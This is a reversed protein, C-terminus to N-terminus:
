ITNLIEEKIKKQHQSNKFEKKIKMEKIYDIFFSNKTPLYHLNFNVGEKLMILVNDSTKVKFGQPSSNEKLYKSYFLKKLQNKSTGNSTEFKINAYALLDNFFHFEHKTTYQGVKKRLIIIRLGIIKPPYIVIKNANLSEIEKLDHEKALHAIKTESNSKVTKLSSFEEIIKEYFEFDLNKYNDVIYNRYYKYGYTSKLLRLKLKKLLM